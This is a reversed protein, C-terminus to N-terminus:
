SLDEPALVFNLFDIGQNTIVQQPFSHTLDHLTCLGRGRLDGIIRNVIVSKGRLEPLCIDLVELYSVHQPLVGGNKAAALANCRWLFNLVVVHTPTFEDILRLYMFQLVDDVATFTGIRVLINRLYRRKESKHTSIAIRSAEITASIFQENNALAEPQFNATQSAIEALTDALEKLWEDRRRSVAPVMVLSLVEAISGGVFPIASVIARATVQVADVDDPEPYRESLPAFLKIPNEPV